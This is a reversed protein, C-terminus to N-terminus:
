PATLSGDRDWGACPCALLRLADAKSCGPLASVIAQLERMKRGIRPKPPPEQDSM